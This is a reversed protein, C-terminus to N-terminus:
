LSNTFDIPSGGLRRISETLTDVPEEVEKKEDEVSANKNISVAAAINKNKRKSQDPTKSSVKSSPLAM